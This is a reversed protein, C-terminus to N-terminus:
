KEDRNVQEKPENKSETPTVDIVGPQMLEDPLHVFSHVEHHVSKAAPYDDGIKCAEKLASLGIGPDPHEVFSKLKEVRYERGLGKSEMLDQIATRIEPNKMLTNQLAKASERSSVDYAEMAAATRSKGDAVAIVFTQEKQTLRQLSEPPPALRKLRKSIAAESVGFYQAAAKQSKGSEIMALLEQDNVKRRKM